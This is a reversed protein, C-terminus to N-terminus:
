ILINYTHIQLSFFLSNASKHFNLARLFNPDAFRMDAFRLFYQTRLDCIAVSASPGCINCIKYTQLNASKSNASSIQPGGVEAFKGSTDVVGATGTPFNINHNISTTYRSKRIDGCIKSFFQFPGLKIRLPKPFSSEHFFVQLLFDQSVTRKFCFM